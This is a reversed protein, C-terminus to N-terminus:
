PKPLNVFRHEHILSRLSAELADEMNQSNIPHTVLAVPQRRPLSAVSSCDLMKWLKPNSLDFSCDKVSDNAQSNGYFVKENFVCGVRGYKHAAPSHQVHSYRSGTLSEWLTAQPPQGPESSHLTIVWMHPEGAQVTELLSPEPDKKATM